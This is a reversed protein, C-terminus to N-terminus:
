VTRSFVPNKAGKRISELYVDFCMAINRLFLKGSETVKIMNTSVQVLGDASLESLLNQDDKFYDDFTLGHKKGFAKKNKVTVFLQQIIM